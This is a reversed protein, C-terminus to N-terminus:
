KKQAFWKRKLSEQRLLFRTEKDAIRMGSSAGLVKRETERIGKAATTWDDLFVELDRLVQKLEEGVTM